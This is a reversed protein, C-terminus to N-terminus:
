EGLGQIHWWMRSGVTEDLTAARHGQIKVTKVAKGRVVTGRCSMVEGM